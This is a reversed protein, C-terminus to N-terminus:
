SRLRVIRIYADVREITNIVFVKLGMARRRKHDRAQAETAEKGPRKTEVFDIVGGPWMCIRDPVNRKGPSTFKECEGGLLRVQKRLHREVDSERM